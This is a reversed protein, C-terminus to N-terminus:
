GRLLEPRPLELTFGDRVQRVDSDQLNTWGYRRDAYSGTYGVFDYMDSVTAAGFRDVRDILAELVEIAEGRTTLTIDAFNHQARDRSSLRRPEGRDSMQDYRTRLSPRDGSLVGGRGRPRTTGFLVRNTGQGVIEAILNKVAPVIVDTMIYEGISSADDAIMNNAARRYWPKKRVIVKGEIIKEVPERAAVEKEQKAEKAKHTNGPVPGPQRPGNGVPESM